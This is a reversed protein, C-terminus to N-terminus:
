EVANRRQRRIRDYTLLEARWRLYQERKYSHPLHEDMFPVVVDLLDAFARVAFVVADDHHERRRQYLRIRGVGLVDRLLEVTTRDASGLMVAFTFSSRTFGRAGTTRAVTFTGEAAVLGGLADALDRHWTM